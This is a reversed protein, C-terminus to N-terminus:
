SVSKRLRFTKWRMALGIASLGLGTGATLRNSEALVGVGLLFLVVGMVGIVLGAIPAPDDVAESPPALRKLQEFFRASRDAAEGQVPFLWGALFLVLASVLTAAVLSAGQVKGAEAVGSISRYLLFILGVGIGTLFGALAGAASLRKSLLGAIVPLVTPPLFFGFALVMADFMNWHLHIVLLAIALALVGIVATLGRGVFVLERQTAHPHILRQHVDVTLVAAVVNLSSSIVSMAAAFLASIMLGFMGPPLLDASVRAYISQADFGAPAIFARAWIGTLIWLPPLLFFLVAATWGIGRSERDNRASYFRQVLSWNGAASLMTLLLFSGVYGWTYPAHVLHFFEPPLVAIVHRWGGAARLTLPALLVVGTAVLVFQVFDTIVVAWLGGLMTYFVTVLGVAICAGVPSIKLGAAVFIGIAVIKLADDFIKLPLASWVFLQRIAPSFRRELFETPTLIGTRRWRKAFIWTVLLTAPVMTWYLTLAVLGYQYGLAAYVVISFTSVSAMVFSVGGLWWSLQKGGAFYMNLSKVRRSYALGVLIMTVFYTILVAFDAKQV